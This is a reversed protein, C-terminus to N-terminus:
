LAAILVVLHQQLLDVGVSLDVHHRGLDLVGVEQAHSHARAERLRGVHVEGPGFDGGKDLITKAKEM